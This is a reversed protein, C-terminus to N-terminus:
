RMRSQGRGGQTRLSWKWEMGVRQGLGGQGEGAVYQGLLCLPGQM